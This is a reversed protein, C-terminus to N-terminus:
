GQDEVLAFIEHSGDMGRLAYRGLSLVPFGCSQAFSASLLTKDLRKALLEMRSAENVAQGIITFDLRDAAGINGYVVEGFHLVLSAQLRPEERKRADNLAKTRAKIERAAVVAAVCAKGSREAAPFVALLGDGLFKLVEGGNAAIPDAFAALHENLWGIAAETGYHDVMTTFGRLDALLLAAEINRRDGRHIMGQLVQRGTFRGLYAGLTETAVHLLGIRYAVLGLAPLTRAVAEVEGEAFGGERDTAVSLAVGRLATRGESFPLIALSYETAGRERLEAFVPFRSAGPHDLRWREGSVNRKLLDHIPSQLFRERSQLEAAIRLPPEIDRRWWTSVLFSASPDITPMGIGTTLLRMGHALWRESYATLVDTLDDLTLGDRLLSDIPDFGHGIVSVM